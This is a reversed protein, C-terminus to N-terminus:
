SRSKRRPMPMKGIIAFWVTADITVLPVNADVM